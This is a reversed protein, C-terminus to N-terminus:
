TDNSGGIDEVVGSGNFDVDQVEIRLPPLQPRRAALQAPPEPQFPPAVPPTASRQRKLEDLVRSVCGALDKVEGRLTRHEDRWDDAGLRAAPSSAVLEDTM